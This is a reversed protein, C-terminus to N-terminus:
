ADPAPAEPTGSAGSEDVPLDDTAAPTADAGGADPAPTGTEVPASTETPEPTATETPIPQEAGSIAPTDTPTPTETVPDAPFYVSESYVLRSGPVSPTRTPGTWLELAAYGPNSGAGQRDGLFAIQCLSADSPTWTLSLPDPFARTPNNVNLYLKLSKSPLSSICVNFTAHGGVPIPGADTRTMTFSETPEPPTYTVVTSKALTIGKSKATITVTKNSTIDDATTAFSASLAGAAVTISPPVPLVTPNSSQISITVGGAPARGTLRVSVQATSTTEITSPLSISSIFPEYIVIVKSKTVGKYTATITVNTTHATPKTTIGVLEDTAGTNVHAYAPVPIIEPHSSKLTINLGGSPAPESIRVRVQVRKGGTTSGSASMSTFVAAAAAPRPAIGAVLGGLLLAAILIHAARILRSRVM